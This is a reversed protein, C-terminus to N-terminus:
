WVTNIVSATLDGEVQEKVMGMMVQLIMVSCDDIHPAAPTNCTTLDSAVPRPGRVGTRVACVASSDLSIIM